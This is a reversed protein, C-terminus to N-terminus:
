HSPVILYNGSSVFPLKNDINDKKNSWFKSTLQGLESQLLVSFPQYFDM